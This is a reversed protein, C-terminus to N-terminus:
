KQQFYLDMHGNYTKNREVEKIRLVFKKRACSKDLLDVNTELCFLALIKLTLFKEIVLFISPGPLTCPHLLAGRCM